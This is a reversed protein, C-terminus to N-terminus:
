NFMRGFEMATRYAEELESLPRRRVFDPNLAYVENIFRRTVDLIANVFQFGPILSETCRIQLPQPPTSRVRLGGSEGEARICRMTVCCGDALYELWLDDTEPVTHCAYGTDSLFLIATNLMYLWDIVPEGSLPNGTDGSGVTRGNFSMSFNARVRFEAAGNSDPTMGGLRERELDDIRYDISFM